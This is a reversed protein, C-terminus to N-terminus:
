AAERRVVPAEQTVMEPWNSRIRWLENIMRLTSRFNTTSGGADYRVHVPVETVGIQYRMCATLLECDFGFGDCKMQPVILNVVRQHFGKLGAQTDLQALPLLTRVVRGFVRSQRQRRVAYSLTSPQLELVSEPHTRSGIVAEHGSRLLWAVRRIDGFPYALDIDTFIRHPAQAALLGQRVAYGKGRNPAYDMLRVLARDTAWSRIMETSGDTSGDCVFILEWQELASEVFEGLM